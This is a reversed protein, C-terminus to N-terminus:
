KPLVGAMILAVARADFHLKDWIPAFPGLRAWEASGEVPQYGWITDGYDAGAIAMIAEDQVKKSLRYQDESKKLRALTELDRLLGYAFDLDNGVDLLRSEIKLYCWVVVGKETAVRRQVIEAEEFDIM